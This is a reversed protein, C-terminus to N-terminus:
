KNWANYDRKLIGQFKSAVDKSLQNDTDWCNCYNISGNNHVLHDMFWNKNDMVNWNSKSLRNSNPGIWHQWNWDLYDKIIYEAPEAVVCESVKSTIKGVTTVPASHNSFSNAVVPAGWVSVYIIEDSGSTDTSISGQEQGTGANDSNSPRLIPSDGGASVSDTAQAPVLTGKKQPTGDQSGFQVDSSTAIM